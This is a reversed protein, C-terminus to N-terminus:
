LMREPLVSVAFQGKWAPLCAFERGNPLIARLSHLKLGQGCGAGYRDDGHVPFGEAALQARIQRKRGTALRIQLLTDGNLRALPLTECIAEKGGPIPERYALVRDNGKIYHQLVQRSAFPWDGSIWALYEKHIRGNRFWLHLEQAASFSAGILLVGSTDKDLRHCPIPIFQCGACAHKLRSAVSDWHGTGGQTPLGAPKNIAWIDACSGLLPPLDPDNPYVAPKPDAVPFNKLAFPPVRVIDGQNVIAFPRARSGNVRVQGTRIWRHLLAEPMDLRRTLFRLLKQGSEAIGVPPFQKDADAM